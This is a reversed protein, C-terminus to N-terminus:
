EPRELPEIFYQDADVKGSGLAVDADDPCLILRYVRGDDGALRVRVQHHGQMANQQHQDITIQDGEPLSANQLKMGQQLQSLILMTFHPDPLNM